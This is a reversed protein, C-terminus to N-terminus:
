GAQCLIDGKSINKLINFYYMVWPYNPSNYIGTTYKKVIWLLKVDYNGADIDKSDFDTEECYRSLLKAGIAISYRPKMLRRVEDCTIEMKLDRKLTAPKLQVFGVSFNKLLIIRPFLLSILKEIIEYVKGRNAKEIALVGLLLNPNLNNRSSELVISHWFPKLTFAYNKILYNWYDLDNRKIKM